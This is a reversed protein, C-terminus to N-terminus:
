LYIPIKVPNGALERMSKMEKMMKKVKAEMRQKEEAYKSAMEDSSKKMREIDKQMKEKEEELEHIEEDKESLVSAMEEQVEKLKVQHQRILENIEHNLVEGATTDVIDRQEDVLERQIQLAIPHNEIIMRIINHASETTNHHRALRAGKDLVPKFFRSSLQNERDQGDEPSVEDWMNTVLVVNKLTEDGCLQRFMDFNQRAAGTFRKDSIRHVYIVGSLKCGREYRNLLEVVRM